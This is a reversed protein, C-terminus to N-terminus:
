KLKFYFVILALLLGSLFSAVMKSATSSLWNGRKSKRDLRCIDNLSPVRNEISDCIDALENTLKNVDTSENRNILAKCIENIRPKLTTYYDPIVKTICDYPYDVLLKDIKNKYNEVNNLETIYTESEMIRYYIDFLENLLQEYHEIGPLLESTKGIDKKERLHSIMASISDVRTKMSMYNPVAQRIAAPSYNSLTNIIKERLYIATWDATDFFARYEHGLAKDLNKRIYEESKGEQLGCEAAQARIVHEYANKLENLPQIFSKYGENFEEAKIIFHKTTEHIKLIKEWVEKKYM